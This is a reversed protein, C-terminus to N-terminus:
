FTSFSEPSFNSELIQRINFFHFSSAVSFTNWKLTSFKSLWGLFLGDIVGGM